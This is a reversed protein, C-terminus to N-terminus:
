VIHAEVVVLLILQQLELYQTQHELAVMEVLLVRHELQAQVVAVVVEAPPVSTM